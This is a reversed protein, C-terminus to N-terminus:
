GARRTVEGTDGGGEGAEEKKKCVGNEDREENAACKPKCEGGVLEKGDECTTPKPPDVVTDSTVTVKCEATFGGEETIVKIVTEGVAKAVIMGNELVAVSPNTNEWTVKKNTAQVPNVTARLAVNNEGVKMKAEYISLIVGTVAVPEPEKPEEIVNTDVTVCDLDKGGSLESVCVSFTVKGPKLGIARAGEIKMVASNSSRYTVRCENATMYGMYPTLDRTVGVKLDAFNADDRRIYDCRAQPTNTSSSGNSGQSGGNSGDNNESNQPAERWHATLTIDENVPNLFDFRADGWYWGDFVYGPKTPALPPNLTKGKAIDFGEIATGGATDFKVHVIEVDGQKSWKAVLIMDKNVVGGAFDFPAGDYVWGEFEFGEKTPDEPKTLSNGCVMETSNVYSGGNSEFRVICSQTPKRTFFWIGVFGIIAVILAVGVGILASKGKTYKPEGVFEPEDEKSQKKKEALKEEDLAYGEAEADVKDLKAKPGAKVAGDIVMGSVSKAGAKAPKKAKAVSGKEAEANEASAAAEDTADGGLDVVKISSKKVVGDTTKATKGGAKASKTKTGAKKTTSKAKTVVVASAPALVLESGPKVTSKSKKEAMNELNDDALDANLPDKIVIKGM